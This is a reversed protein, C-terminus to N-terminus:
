WSGGGGRGPGLAGAAIGQETSEYGQQAMEVYTLCGAVNAAIESRASRWLAGFRAVADAAVPSGLAASDPRVTCLDDFAEIQALLNQLETHVRGLGALDVHVDVPGTRSM